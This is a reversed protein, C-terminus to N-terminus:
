NQRDDNMGKRYADALHKLDVRDPDYRDADITDDPLMPAVAYVVGRGQTFVFALLKEDDLRLVSAIFVLVNDKTNGVTDVQGANAEQRAECLGEITNRERESWEADTTLFEWDHTM